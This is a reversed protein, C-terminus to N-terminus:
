FRGCWILQDIAVAGFFALLAATLMGIWVALAIAQEPNSSYIQQFHKRMFDKRAPGAVRRLVV